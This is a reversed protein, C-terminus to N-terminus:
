ISDIIEQDFNCFIKYSLAYSKITINHTLHEAVLIMCLGISYM